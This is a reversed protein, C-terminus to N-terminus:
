GTTSGSSTPDRTWFVREYVFYHDNPGVWLKQQGVREQLEMFTAIVSTQFIDYWTTVPVPSM